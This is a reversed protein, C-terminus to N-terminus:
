GLAMALICSAAEAISCAPTIWNRQVPAVVKNWGLHMSSAHAEDASM